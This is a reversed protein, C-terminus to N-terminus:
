INLLRGALRRGVRERYRTRAATEFQDAGWRQQPGLPLAAITLMNKRDGAAVHCLRCSALGIREVQDKM